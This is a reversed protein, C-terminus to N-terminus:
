SFLFLIIHFFKETRHEGFKAPKHRSVRRVFTNIYHLHPQFILPIIIPPLRYLLPLNTITCETFVHLPKPKYGRKNKIEVNRPLLQHAELEQQKIEM